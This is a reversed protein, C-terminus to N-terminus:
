VDLCFLSHIEAGEMQEDKITMALTSNMSGGIMKAKVGALLGSKQRKKPPFTFYMMM